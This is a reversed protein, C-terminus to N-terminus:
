QTATPTSVAPMRQHFAVVAVWCSALQSVQRGGLNAKSLPDDAWRHPAIRHRRPLQRAVRTSVGADRRAM